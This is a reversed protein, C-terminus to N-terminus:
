PAVVVCHRGQQKARYRARDAHGLLDELATRCGPGRISAVGLSATISIPGKPGAIAHLPLENRIREAVVTAGPGDTSPLICLFEDDAFRGVVDGTRLCSMLVQGVMALVNDGTAHGWTHNLTDLHDVDLLIVSLHEATRDARALDRALAAELAQRNCVGTLPDTTALVELKGNSERLDSELAEKSRVAKELSSVLSDYQDTLAALCTEAQTRLAGFELQPGVQRDLVVALELLAPPISQLIPDLERPHIGVCGLAEEAAARSSEFFCSEYVSALREAVWAIRGLSTAPCEACHHRQIAYVFEAGMNHERVLSASLETHEVFGAARERLLRHSAPSLAIAIAHKPDQRASVLLGADLFLGVTFCADPESHRIHRAVTQAAVARRLCNALLPESGATDAALHTVVLSLALSRLGRIGLLSSAQQVSSIRRGIGIVPNNVYGIIRLAFAPDATAMSALEAVSIDDRLAAQIIQTVAPSLPELKKARRVPTPEQSEDAAPTRM